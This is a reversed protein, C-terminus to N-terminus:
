FNNIVPMRNIFEKYHSVLNKALFFSVAFDISGYFNTMDHSGIDYRLTGDRIQEAKERALSLQEAGTPLKKLLAVLETEQNNLKVELAKTSAPPRAMELAYLGVRFALEHHESFEAM